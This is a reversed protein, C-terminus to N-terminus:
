VIGKLSELGKVPELAPATVTGRRQLKNWSSRTGRLVTLASKYLIYTRLPEYILRYIPTILRRSPSERGLWVGAVASILQAALFIAAYLLLDLGPAEFMVVAMVYVFPLFILPMVVSIAALPLSLMGLWGYRPNFM